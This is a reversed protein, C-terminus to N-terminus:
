LRRAALPTSVQTCCIDRAEFWWDVSLAFNRDGRVFLQIQNPMIVYRGLAVNFKDSGRRAYRQLALQADDLSRIARRDRTTFTVFYLPQNLYILDLRRPRNKIM